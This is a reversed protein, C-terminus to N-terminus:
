GARDGVGWEFGWLWMKQLAQVTGAAELGNKSPLWLRDVEHLQLRLGAFSPANM